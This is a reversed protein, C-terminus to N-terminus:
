PAFPCLLISSARLAFAGTSKNQLFQTLRENKKVNKLSNGWEERLFHGTANRRRSRTKLIRGGPFSHFGILLEWLRHLHILVPRSSFDLGENLYLRLNTGYCFLLFTSLLTCFLKPFTWTHSQWPKDGAMVTSMPFSSSCTHSACVLSAFGPKVASHPSPAPTQPLTHTCVQLGLM